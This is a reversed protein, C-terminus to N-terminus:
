EDGTNTVNLMKPPIEDIVLEEIKKAEDIHAAILAAARASYEALKRLPVLYAKVVPDVDVLPLAIELEDKPIEPLKALEAKLIAPTPVSPSGVKKEKYGGRFGAHVFKRAGTEELRLKVMTDIEGLDKDCQIREAKLWSSYEQNGRRVDLIEELSLDELSIKGAGLVRALANADEELSM